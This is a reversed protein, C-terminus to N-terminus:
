CTRTKGICVSVIQIYVRLRSGSCPPNGAQWAAGCVSFCAVRLMLVLCCFVLCSVLCSLVVRCSVVRCSVVRCSVVRCSVVRCSVCHVCMVRVVVRVWKVCVCWVGCLCSHKSIHKDPLKKIELTDACHFFRSHKSIHVAPLRGYDQM